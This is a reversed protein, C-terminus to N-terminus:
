IRYGAEYKKPLVFLEGDRDFGVSASVEYVEQILEETIVKKPDGVAYIKGEKMIICEECYRAMLSIDHEAVLISIDKRVMARLYEMVELKYRMDLHSTPEDVLMLRPEQVYAKAILVRQREGSSLMNLPKNQLHSVGFKDLADTVTSEDTEAEWWINKLYPYRGLMVTEYVTLGFSGRLEAPVNSVKKAIEGATKGRVSEGDILVDGSTIPHLKNICRMMSTKGCGNPGILGVLKGSSISFSMGRVAHHGDEYYKHLDRVELLPEAM